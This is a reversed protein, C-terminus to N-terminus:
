TPDGGVTFIELWEKSFRNLDVPLIDIYAEVKYGDLPITVHGDDARYDFSYDKALENLTKMRRKKPKLPILDHSDKFVDTYSGYLMWSAQRWKGAATKIAGHILYPSEGEEESYIKYIIYEYGDRTRAEFAPAQEKEQAAQRMTHSADPNNDYCYRCQTALSISSTFLEGCTICRTTFGTISNPYLATFPSTSMAEKEQEFKVRQKAETEYDSALYDEEERLEVLAPTATFSSPPYLGTTSEKLV